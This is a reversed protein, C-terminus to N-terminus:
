QIDEKSSSEVTEASQFKKAPGVIEIWRIECFALPYVKKVKLSVAKQLKNIMVESFLERSSKIRAHGEIFKRATNRIERRVARSVHNRTIMFPKILLESDKCSTKFSDEVYDIGRRMTRRIYSPILVMSILESEIKGEKSSVKAKLELNKGKLTKTMDLTVIKNDIEEPSIAYLKVKTSTLPVPVEFFKKKVIKKAQVAEAM